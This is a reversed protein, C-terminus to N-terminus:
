YVTGIGVFESNIMSSFSHVCFGQNAFRITSLWAAIPDSLASQM